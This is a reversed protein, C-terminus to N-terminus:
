AMLTMMQMYHTALQSLSHVTVDFLGDKVFQTKYGPDWILLFLPGALTLCILFSHAQPGKSAVEESGLVKPEPVREADPGPLPDRANSAGSNNPM